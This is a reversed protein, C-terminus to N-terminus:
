RGGLKMSRETAAVAAKIVANRFGLEELKEVAAITTGGPSCVGDKLVAPHEKTELVMTAAGKLTQAAYIYAQNRPMGLKVAADALAEIFVFGYAPGSGSIGTVCDMLKEPVEEVTGAKSLLTKIDAKEEESIDDEACMAIMAEGVTAPLNPMLRVFRSVTLASKKLKALELGAAISVFVPLDEKAVLSTVDELVSAVFQPKVAVILYDVETAVEVSDAKGVVGLEAVLNEVKKSDTDCVFINKAPISKSIAKILASGMMGCGVFGVKVDSM